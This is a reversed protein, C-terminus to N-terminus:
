AEVLSIFDEYKGSATRPIEDVYDFTLEFPHKLCDLLYDKLKTEEEESLPRATVLKVDIRHVSPQILQIQRVPAIPMMSASFYAIPWIKDGNPLVAMNRSRGLVRNIVPLGRGCSCPEGVEAHDGLEYRILPTAFSHLDTIVVRGVEGPMCPKDDENLVEVIVSESQIHYHDHDPCQIALIGAEQCSYSDTVKAGFVRQTIDRIDPEMVESMTIVQKLNPLSVGKEEALLGLAKLNSPFTLLYDANQEALWDLQESVPRTIDFMMMPGTPYENIWRIPKGSKAAAAMKESMLSRVGAVKARLDRKHWEHFRLTFARFKLGTIRTAKLAIPQGTSGATRVDSVPEHGKPLRTSELAAGANQIDTRKLIPITRWIQPNLQGRRLGKLSNLRDRYFPVTSAAHALLLEAQRSQLMELQGFTLWQSETLQFLYSMVVANGVGPVAPWVVGDYASHPVTRNLM